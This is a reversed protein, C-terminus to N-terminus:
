RGYASRHSSGAHWPNQELRFARAEEAQLPIVFRAFRGSASAPIREHTLIDVLTWTGKRRGTFSPIDLTIQATNPSQSANLVALHDKGYREIYVYAQASSAYPIPEWGAKALEQIAPIYKVFLDRDRNYWKPEQWYPHTSADASFMSPFVAYFLCRNFYREVMDHGFRDFDTNQLLLYPKHYSMTRRLNFVADSDPRWTGGPLWNTETGAVDLLPMFISFRWPTGNAMLLRGRAHLHRSMYDALEWVSFWTPIVPQHTDTTFTAPAQSYAISRPAYDLVEAWGELSDLYEGDPANPQAPATPDYSLRAKTWENPSHPLKPNPNLVWIAGNTWPANAFLVNFRGADDMSASNWLAEGWHRLEPNPGNRYQEAIKIAEEYTRPVAADMAMWWTMPETYRFSLIHLKRDTAVSNDGEHFAFHFDEPHQVTAPDTFPIWLGLADTRRRFAQPFMHVYTAVAARFGWAGAFRARVITASCTARGFTDRNALNEKTLAMDFAAFMIGTAAHYGLRYVRPGLDPPIGLMVGSRANTVCAFPYLSQMGLAGVSAVRVLNWYDGPAGVRMSNRIDNWWIPNPIRAREVYYLTLARTQGTTDAVRLTSGTPTHKVQVIALGLRRVGAQARAGSSPGGIYLPEVAGDRAVDRAFWGWDAHAPLRPASIPQGDFIGAGSVQYAHIDDFWVTGTHNRFLAYVRASKVPKAPLILVRARQWDHTGTRFPAVQGWLPTGDTYQLDVYISYDSNSSGSVNEARSWGTVVMPTPVTQNLTIVFSAGSGDSPSTNTCRIAENGSHKVATDLQYGREYPEWGSARGSTVSEFGPNSILNPAQHQQPVFSAIGLLLIGIGTM